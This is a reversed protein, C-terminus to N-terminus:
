LWAMSRGEGRGKRKPWQLSNFTDSSWPLFLERTVVVGVHIYHSCIAQLSVLIFQSNLSIICHLLATFHSKFLCFEANWGQLYGYFNPLVTAIQLPESLLPLLRTLPDGRQALITNMIREWLFLVTQSKQRIRQFLTLVGRWMMAYMDLNESCFILEISLYSANQPGSSTSGTSSLM